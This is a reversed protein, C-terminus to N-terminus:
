IPSELRANAILEPLSAQNPISILFDTQEAMTQPPLPPGKATDPINAVLCTAIASPWEMETEADMQLTM